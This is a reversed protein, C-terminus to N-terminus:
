NPVDSVDTKAHRSKSRVTGKRVRGRGMACEGDIAVVDMAQEDGPDGDCGLEKGIYKVGVGTVCFDAAERLRLEVLEFKV